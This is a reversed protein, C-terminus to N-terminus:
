SNLRANPSAAQHQRDPVHASGPVIHSTIEDVRWADNMELRVLKTTVSMRIKEGQWGDRGLPTVTVKWERLASTPTYTWHGLSDDTVSAKTVVGHEAWETFDMAQYSTGVLDRMCAPTLYSWARLAADLPLEDRRTDIAWIIKLAERAVDSPDSAVARSTPTTRHAESSQSQNSTGASMCGATFGIVITAGLIVLQRGVSSAIWDIL